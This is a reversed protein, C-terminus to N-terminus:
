LMILFTMMVTYMAKIKVVVFIPVILINLKAFKNKGNKIVM